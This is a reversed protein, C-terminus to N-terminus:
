RMVLAGEPVIGHEVYRWLDILLRRALAVIGVRRQRSAGAAWRRQYWLSLKSAPQYRLWLWALDVMLARIRPSGAKSIGQDRGSSGSQYPTGTLGAASGVERRNKFQRWFFEHVLTQAGQEGIGRLAMLTLIKHMCAPVSGSRNHQASAEKLDKRRRTEIEQLQGQALRLRELARELESRVNMPLPEGDWTSLKEIELGRFSKLSIGFLALASGIRNSERTIETQLRKRERHPRRADEQEPTPVRLVSWVREGREHRILMQLLKLADLRDTKARRARRNVEISAPDVVLSDVGARRLHRHIWFGDRGSEQCVLTRCGGPLGFRQQAAQFAQGLAAVDGADITVVRGPRTGDSLAVKWTRRSLELAAYLVPAVAAVPTNQRQAAQIM